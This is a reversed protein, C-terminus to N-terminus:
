AKDKPVKEEELKPTMPLVGEGELIRELLNIVIVEELTPAM